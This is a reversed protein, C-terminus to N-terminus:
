ANDKRGLLRVCGRRIRNIWRQADAWQNFTETFMDYVRQIVIETFGGGTACADIEGQVWVGVRNQIDARTEEIFRQLERRNRMREDHLQKKLIHLEHLIDDLAEKTIRECGCGCEEQESVGSLDVDSEM